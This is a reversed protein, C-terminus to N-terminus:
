KTYTAWVDYPADTRSRNSVQTRLLFNNGNPNSFIIATQVTMITGDSNPYTTGMGLPLKISNGIDIYGGQSIIKTPSFSALVTDTQTTLSAVETITGTFRQGYLGNGFFIEKNPPWLDPRNIDYAGPTTVGSGAVDTTKTYQLFLLADDAGLNVDRFNVVSVYGPEIAGMTFAFAQQTKYETGNINVFRALVLNELNAPVATLRQWGRGAVTSSAEISFPGTHIIKQYIPKGDEWVGVVKEDTSYYDSNNTSVMMNGGLYPLIKEHYAKLDGKNLVTNDNQIAM